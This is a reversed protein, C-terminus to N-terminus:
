RVGVTPTQKEGCCHCSSGIGWGRVVLHLAWQKSYQWSLDSILDEREGEHWVFILCRCIRLVRVPVSRAERRWPLTVAHEQSGTFRRICLALLNKQPIQFPSEPKTHAKYSHGTRFMEVSM